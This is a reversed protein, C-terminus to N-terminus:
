KKFLGYSDKGFFIKEKLPDINKNHEYCLILRAVVFKDTLINTIEYKDLIDKDNPDINHKIVVNNIGLNGVRHDIKVLDGGKWVYEGRFWDRPHIWYESLIPDHKPIVGKRIKEIARRQLFDRTVPVTFLEPVNNLDINNFKVRGNVIHIISKLM